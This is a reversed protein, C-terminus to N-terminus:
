YEVNSCVLNLMQVVFEVDLNEIKDRSLQSPQGARPTTARDAARPHLEHSAGLGRAGVAVVRLPQSLTPSRTLTSLHPDLM